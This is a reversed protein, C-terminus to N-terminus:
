AGISDYLSYMPMMIALVIPVVIVAMVIIILPEMAALLAETASEVEEDYYAAVKDLMDEMNGTEEGIEIMHYVMPPFVGSDALPKSLPIGRSVEETADKLAQKVVANGMMETVLGLADVLQVGSGMLTSLTRTMRSSATKISLPGVLPVKLIFKGLIHAGGETKKWAHIFIAIGAIIAVIFYWSHVFFDSVAMVALTIGPLKGGVEDFQSTFTPVIKIMMIAVVVIIVLILIVPYIASKIILGKLHAEKEFQSGVRSFAKDLGGSSEGAAVMQVMLNPFIKPHEAMAVALTEGRQVSDRVEAIANAFPKNETQESLMDLAEVVTVGANLVSEFQRCFVSMERVSVAKGIHIELDKNFANARTISVITNDGEIDRTTLTFEQGEVIEIKGDKYTKTRIEPGKTDLMIGVPMGLEKRAAKVADMRAKHEEHSGHSFNMRAVNMGAKIMEPLVADTAPGLTCIIKTKRM